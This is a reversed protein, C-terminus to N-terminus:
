RSPGERGKQDWKGCHGLDPVGSQQYFGERKCVKEDWEIQCVLRRMRRGEERSYDVRGQWVLGSSSCKEKEQLEDGETWFSHNFRM